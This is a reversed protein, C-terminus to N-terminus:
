KKKKPALVMVLQRGEIKQPFLETDSCDELDQQVRQLCEIGIEQHALERGRFRVAVKVKDGGEIFRRVNRLKIQYDNEETGPRFRIERVKMSKQKKKAEKAKKKRELTFKGYNMIRCVPPKAEAAIEVLDLGSDAAKALAEAISVIGQQEGEQDIL